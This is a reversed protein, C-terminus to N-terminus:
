SSPSQIALTRRSLGSSIPGSCTWAPRPILLLGPLLGPYHRTLRSNTDADSRPGEGPRPYLESAGQSMTQIKTWDDQGPAAEDATEPPAIPAITSASDWTGAATAPGPSTHQRSRHDSLQYELPRPTKDPSTTAGAYAM